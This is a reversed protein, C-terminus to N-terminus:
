VGITQDTSLGDWCVGLAIASLVLIVILVLVLAWTELLPKLFKRQPRKKTPRLFYSERSRSQM